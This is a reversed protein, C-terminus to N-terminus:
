RNRAKQDSVVQWVSLKEVPVVIILMFVSLMISNLMIVRLNFPKNAVSLMFSAWCFYCEAYCNTDLKM